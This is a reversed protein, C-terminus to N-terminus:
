KNFVKKEISQIWEDYQDEARDRADLLDIQQIRLDLHSEIYRQVKKERIVYWIYGGIFGLIVPLSIILTLTMLAEKM